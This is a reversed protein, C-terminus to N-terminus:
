PVKLELIELKSLNKRKKKQKIVHLIATKSSRYQPYTKLLTLLFIYTHTQGTKTEKNWKMQVFNFGEALGIFLFHFFM